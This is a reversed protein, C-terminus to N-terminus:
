SNSPLVPPPMPKMALSPMTGARIRGVPVISRGSAEMSKNFSVTNLVHNVYGQNYEEALASDGEEAVECLDRLSHLYHRDKQHQM